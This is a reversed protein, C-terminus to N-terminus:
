KHAVRSPSMTNSTRVRYQVMAPDILGNLALSSYREDLQMNKMSEKHRFAHDCSFLLCVLLYSEPGTVFLNRCIEIAYM